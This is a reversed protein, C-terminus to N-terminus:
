LTKAKLVGLFVLFSGLVYRGVSAEILQYQHSSPIDAARRSGGDGSWPKMYVERRRRRTSLVEDPVLSDDEDRRGLDDRFSAERALSRPTM